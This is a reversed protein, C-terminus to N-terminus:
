QQALRARHALANQSPLPTRPEGAEAGLDAASPAISANSEEVTPIADGEEDSIQSPPVHHQGQEEEEDSFRLDDYQALASSSAYQGQSPWAPWIQSEPLDIEM